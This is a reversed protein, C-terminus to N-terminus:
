GKISWCRMCTDFIGIINEINAELEDKSLDNCYHTGLVSQSAHCSDCFSIVFLWSKEVLNVAFLASSQRLNEIIYVHESILDVIVACM